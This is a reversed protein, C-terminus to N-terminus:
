KGLIKKFYKPIHSVHKWIIFFNERDFPNQDFINEYHLPGCIVNDM